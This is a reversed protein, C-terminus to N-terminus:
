KFNENKPAFLNYRRQFKPGARRQLRKKPFFLIEVESPALIFRVIKNVPNQSINEM